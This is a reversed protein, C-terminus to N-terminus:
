LEGAVEELVTLLLEKRESPPVEDAHELYADAAVEALVAVRRDDADPKLGRLMGAMVEIAHEREGGTMSAMTEVV